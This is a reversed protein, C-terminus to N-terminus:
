LKVQKWDVLKSEAEKVRKDLEERLPQYGSCELVEQYERHEM